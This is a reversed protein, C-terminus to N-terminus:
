IPVLTFRGNNEVLDYKLKRRDIQEQIARKTLEIQEQRRTACISRDHIRYYYLPEKVWIPSVYECLRLCLEYDEITEYLPNIGGVTLYIETDILRFHFTIFDVLNNKWTFPIQARRDIGLYNGNSDINYAYSYTFTKNNSLLNKSTKLAHNSLIDDSDVWCLSTAGLAILLDLSNKLAQGRGKHIANIIIFRSDKNLIDLSALSEDKGDFWVVCVFDKETQNQISRLCQKLYEPNQKYTTVAIGIM